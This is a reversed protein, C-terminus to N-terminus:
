LVINAVLVDSERFTVVFESEEMEAFSVSVKMGAFKREDLYM